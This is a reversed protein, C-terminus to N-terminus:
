LLLLVVGVVGLQIKIIVPLFFPIANVELTFFFFFALLLTNLWESVHVSRPSVATLINQQCSM